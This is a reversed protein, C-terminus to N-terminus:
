SHSGPYSIALHSKLVPRYLDTVSAVGKAKIASTVEPYNAIRGLSVEDGGMHVIPSTPFTDAIERFLEQVAVVVSANTFDIIDGTPHSQFAFTAPLTEVLATSHGTGWGECTACGRADCTTLM